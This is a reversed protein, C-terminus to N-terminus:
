KKSKSQVQRNTQSRAYFEPTNEEREPTGLLEKAIKAIDGCSAGQVGEIKMEMQGTETNITFDVEPM